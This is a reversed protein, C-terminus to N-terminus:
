LLDNFDKKAQEIEEKTLPKQVTVDQKLELKKPEYLGYLTNLEKQIALCSKYDQIKLSKEFLMSLRSISKGFELVQHKKATKALLKSAERTYNQVQRESVTWEYKETVYRFMDRGTIGKVLCDYVINIRKLKEGQTCKEEKPM